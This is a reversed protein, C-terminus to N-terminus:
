SDHRNQIWVESERADGNIRKVVLAVRNSSDLAEWYRELLMQPSSDLPFWLPEGQFSPLPSGDGEYTTLGLGLGRPPPAPRFTYRDTRASDVPNARLLSLAFKEEDGRFDVLASIRPTYNPSDPERERTELAEEFSGGSLLTQCITETQDGNSAIFCGKVELMAPYIILSPDEVMASDVPETRVLGDLAVFRRNQSNSSRGMIWYIQLWDGDTGRGVILGRGPYTNRLIREEFNDQARLHSKM